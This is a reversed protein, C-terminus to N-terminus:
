RQGRRTRERQARAAERACHLPDGGSLPAERAGKQGGSHPEVDEQHPGGLTAGPGDVEVHGGGGRPRRRQRRPGPAGAPRQPPAAGPHPSCAGAPAGGPQDSRRRHTDQARAAAGPFLQLPQLAPPPADPGRAGGVPCLRGGASPLPESLAGPLKPSVSALPQLSIQRVVNCLSPRGLVPWPVLTQDRPRVDRAHPLPPSPPTM